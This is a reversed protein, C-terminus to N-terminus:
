IKEISFYDNNKIDNILLPSISNEDRYLINVEANQKWATEIMFFCFNIVLKKKIIEDIAARIEALEIQLSSDSKIYLFTEKTSYTAKSKKLIKGIVYKHWPNKPNRPVGYRAFKQKMQELDKRDEEKEIFRKVEIGCIEGNSLYFIVDPTESFEIKSISPIQLLHYACWLEAELNKKEEKDAKNSMKMLKASLSLQDIITSTQLTNVLCM